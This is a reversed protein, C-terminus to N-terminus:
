IQEIIQGHTNFSLIFTGDHAVVDSINQPIGFDIKESGTLLLWGKKQGEVTRPLALEDFAENLFFHGQVRLRDNCWREVQHLFMMNLEWTQVYNLNDPGFNVSVQNDDVIDNM